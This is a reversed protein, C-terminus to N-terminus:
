GNAIRAIANELEATAVANSVQKVQPLLNAFITRMINIDEGVHMEHEVEKGDIDKYRIVFTWSGVRDMTPKPFIAYVESVNLATIGPDILIWM